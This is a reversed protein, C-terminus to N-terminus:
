IKCKNDVPNNMLISANVQIEKPEPNVLLDPRETKVTRATRATLETWGM